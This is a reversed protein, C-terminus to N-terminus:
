SHGDDLAGTAINRSIRGKPNEGRRAAANFRLQTISKRQSRIMREAAAREAEGWQAVMAEVEGAELTERETKTTNM